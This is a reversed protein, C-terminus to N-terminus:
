VLCIVLQIAIKIMKVMEQPSFFVDVRANCSMQRSMLFFFCFFFVSTVQAACSTKQRYIVRVSVRIQVLSALM